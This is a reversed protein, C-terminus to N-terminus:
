VNNTTRISAKENANKAEDPTKTTRIEIVSQVVLLWTQGNM